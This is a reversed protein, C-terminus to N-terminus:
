SAHKRSRYWLDHQSTIEWMRCFVRLLPSAQHIILATLGAWWLSAATLVAQLIFAILLILGSLAALPALKRIWTLLAAGMSDGAAAAFQLYMFCLRILAIYLVCAAAYMLWPTQQIFQLAGGDQLRDFMLKVLWCVPAWTLVTQLLYLAMFRGYRSRIGALFLAWQDGTQAHIAYFVGANILPTLLMRILLILLLTLSASLLLDTKLLRFEGEIWFLSSWTPLEDGPYRYLLPVAVSRVYRYLIFGWFMEYLFLIIVILSRRYVVSLGYKMSQVM